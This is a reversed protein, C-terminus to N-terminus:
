YVEEFQYTWSVWILVTFSFLGVIAYRINGFLQHHRKDLAVLLDAEVYETWLGHVKLIHVIDRLLYPAHATISVEHGSQLECRRTIGVNSLAM